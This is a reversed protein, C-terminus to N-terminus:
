PLTYAIYHQFFFLFDSYILLISLFSIIVYGTHIVSRPIGRRKKIKTAIDDIVSFTSLIVPLLIIFYYRGQTAFFEKQTRYIRFYHFCVASLSFAFIQFVLYRLFRERKSNTRLHFFRLLMCIVLLLLMISYISFLVIDTMGKKNLQRHAHINYISRIHRAYYKQIYQPFALITKDKNAELANDKRQSFKEYQLAEMSGWIGSRKALLTGTELHNRIFFSLMLLILFFLSKAIIPQTFCHIVKRLFTAKDQQKVIHILIFLVTGAAFPCFLIKTLCGATLLILLLALQFDKQQKLYLYYICVSLLSLINAGTDYTVASSIFTFMPINFIMIIAMIRAARTQFFDRIIRYLPILSISAFLTCSLIRISIFGPTIGFLIKLPLTFIYLISYYFPFAYSSGHSTNLTNLSEKFFLGRELMYKIKFYHYHEDPPFSFPIHVALFLVKYMFFSFFLLYLYKEPKDINQRFPYIWLINLLIFTIIILNFLTADAYQNTQQAASFLLWFATQISIYLIYSKQNQYFSFITQHIVKRKRHLFQVISSVLSLLVTLLATKLILHIIFLRQLFPKRTKIKVTSIEAQLNKSITITKTESHYYEYLPIPKAMQEPSLEISYRRHNDKKKTRSIMLSDNEKWIHISDAKPMLKSSMIFTEITTSRPLEVTEQTMSEPSIFIQSQMSQLSFQNESFGPLLLALSIAPYIIWKKQLPTKIRIHCLLHTCALYICNIGFITFAHIDPNWPSFSRWISLQLITAIFPLQTSEKKKLLRSFAFIWLLLSLLISFHYMKGPGGTDSALIKKVANRDVSPNIIFNRIATTHKKQSVILMIQQIPETKPLRFYVTNWQNSGYIKRISRKESYKGNRSAYYLQAVARKPSKLEVSILNTEIDNKAKYILRPKKNCQSLTSIGLSQTLSANVARNPELKVTSESTLPQLDNYLTNKFLSKAQFFHLILIIIVCLTYFIYKSNKM